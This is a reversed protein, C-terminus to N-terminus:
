VFNRFMYSVDLHLIFISILAHKHLLCSPVAAVAAVVDMVPCFLVAIFEYGYAWFVFKQYVVDVMLNHAHHRPWLMQPCLPLTGFELVFALFYGTAVVISYKNSCREGVQPNDVPTFVITWGDFCWHMLRNIAWTCLDTRHVCFVVALFKQFSYFLILAPSRTLNLYEPPSASPHFTPSSLSYWVQSFTAVM